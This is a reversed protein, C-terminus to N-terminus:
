FVQIVNDDIWELYEPLGDTIPIQVIEPVEYTHDGKIFAKIDDFMSPKSKILLMTETSENIEGEWVYVSEVPIMQVCAAFRKKVLFEAAQKAMEKTPYTTMVISYENNM